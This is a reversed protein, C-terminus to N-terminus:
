NSSRGEMKNRKEPINEAGVFSHRLPNLVKVGIKELFPTIMDRWGKGQDETFDIPGSLYACLDKLRNM